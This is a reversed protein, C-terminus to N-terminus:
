PRREVPHPRILADEPGRSMFQIIQRLVLGAFPCLSSVDERWRDAFRDLNIQDQSRGHQGDRDIETRGPDPVPSIGNESVVASMGDLIVPRRTPDWDEWPGPTQRKGM